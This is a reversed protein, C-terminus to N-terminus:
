RSIQEMKEKRIEDLVTQSRIKKPEPPHRPGWRTRKGTSPFVCATAITNPTFGCTWRAVAADSAALLQSASASEETRSREVALISTLLNNRDDAVQKKKQKKKYQVYEDAMQQDRERQATEYEQNIKPTTPKAGSRIPEGSQIQVLEPEEEDSNDYDYTHASHSSIMLPRSKVITRKSLMGILADDPAKKEVVKEVSWTKKHAAAPVRSDSHHRM